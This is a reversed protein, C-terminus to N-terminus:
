WWLSCTCCIENRWNESMDIMNNYMDDIKKVRNQPLGLDDGPDFLFCNIGESFRFREFRLESFLHEVKKTARRRSCKFKKM